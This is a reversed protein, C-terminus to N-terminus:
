PRKRKPPHHKVGKPTPSPPMRGYVPIITATPQAVAPTMVTTTAPTTRTPAPSTNGAFPGVGTLASVGILCVCVLVVVALAAVRARLFAARLLRWPRAHPLPSAAIDQNSMSLMPQNGHDDQLGFSRTQTQDAIAYPVTYDDPGAPPASGPVALMPPMQESPIYPAATTGVSPIPAGCHACTREQENIPQGCQGCFM